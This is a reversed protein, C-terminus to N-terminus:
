PILPDSHSLAVHENHYQSKTRRWDDPDWAVDGVDTPIFTPYM